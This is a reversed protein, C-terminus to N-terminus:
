RPAKSAALLRKVVAPPSAHAKLVLSEVREGAVPDIDIRLKAAEARTVPDALTVALAKRLAALRAPPIGPPGFIPYGMAYSAFKLELVQRDNPSKAFDLILPVSAPIDPSKELGMQYLISVKGDTIWEPHRQKLAPWSLQARGQTEGRIM